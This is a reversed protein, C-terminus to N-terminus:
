ITEEDVNLRFYIIWNCNQVYRISFGSLISVTYTRYKNVLAFFFLVYEKIFPRCRMQAEEPSAPTWPRRKDSVMLRGTQENAVWEM